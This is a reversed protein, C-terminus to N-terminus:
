FGVEGLRVAVPMSSLQCTIKLHGCQMMKRVTVTFDPAGKHLKMMQGAIFEITVLDTKMLSGVGQHQVKVCVELVICVFGSSFPHIKFMSDQLIMAM